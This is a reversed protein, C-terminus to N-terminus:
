LNVVSVEEFWRGVPHVLLRGRTEVDAVIKSSADVPPKQENKVNRGVKKMKSTKGKKKAKTEGSVM